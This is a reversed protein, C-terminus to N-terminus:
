GNGPFSLVSDFFLFEGDIAELANGSVSLIFYIFQFMPKSGDCMVAGNPLTNLGLLARSSGTIFCKGAPPLSFNIDARAGVPNPKWGM